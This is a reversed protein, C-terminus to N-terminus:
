HSIGSNEGRFNLVWYKLNWSYLSAFHKSQSPLPHITVVPMLLRGSCSVHWTHLPSFVSIYELSSNSICKPMTLSLILYRFFPYAIPTSKPLSPSHQSHLFMIKSAINFLAPGAIPTSVSDGFVVWLTWHTATSSIDLHVLFFVFQLYGM